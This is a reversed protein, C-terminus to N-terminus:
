HVFPGNKKYHEVAELFLEWEKRPMRIAIQGGDKGGRWNVQKTFDWAQLSVRMCADYLMEGPLAAKLPAMHSEVIAKGIDRLSPTKDKDM